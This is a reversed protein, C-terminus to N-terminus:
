TSKRGVKIGYKPMVVKVVYGVGLENGVQAVTKHAHRYQEASTRAIVGLREPNYRGLQTILEETMGEAFYDESPDSSLNDFPLVALMVKAPAPRTLMVGRWFWAGAIALLIAVIGTILAIRGLRTAAAPQLVAEQSLPPGPTPLISALRPAAAGVPAIFRYGRKPITEIFRPSDADDGLAQRLKKIAANLSHEFDVFTDSAWLRERLDDRTVVEGSRELLALLIRFPQEQIKIKVGKHRLEGADVDIEFSGFRVVPHSQVQVAM